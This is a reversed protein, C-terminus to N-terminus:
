VLSRSATTATCSAHPLRDLGGAHRRLEVALGLRRRDLLPDLLQEPEHGREDHQQDDEAREDRGRDRDSEGDHGHPRGEDQEEDKRSQGVDVRDCRDEDRHDPDADPDVVREEDDGAEPLVQVLTQRRAVRRSFRSGRRAPRHDEGTQRHRDGHGAEREEAEVEDRLESDTRRETDERGHQDRVRQEDGHQRLESVLDVAQLHREQLRDVIGLGRALLREDRAPAPEHGRVRLRHEPDQEREPQHEGPGGREHSEACRVLARLRGVLGRPARVVEEGLPEPRAEVARDRDDDVDLAVRPRRLPDVVTDAPELVDRRHALRLEVVRLRTAITKTM